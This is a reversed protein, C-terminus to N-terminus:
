EGEVHGNITTSKVDLKLYVLKGIESAPTGESLWVYFKYEKITQKNITDRLIPYVNTDSATLASITTYYTGNGFDVWESKNEDYIGIILYDFSIIDDITSGEPLAEEDYSINVSFESDLTGNNNLILTAPEDYVISDIATPLDEEPIPYLEGSSIQSSASDIVVELKGTTITQVTTQSKVSFFASYSVNLTVITLILVSIIIIQTDRKIEKGLRM